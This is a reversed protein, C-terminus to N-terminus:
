EGAKAALMHVAYALDVAADYLADEAAVVEAVPMFGGGGGFGNFTILADAYADLQPRIADLDITTM